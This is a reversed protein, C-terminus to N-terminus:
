GLGGDTGGSGPTTTKDKPPFIRRITELVAAAAGALLVWATLTDTTKPKKRRRSSSRRLDSGDTEFDGSDDDSDPMIGARLNLLQDNLLQLNEYYTKCLDKQSSPKFRKLNQCQEKIKSEFSAILRETNVALKEAKQIELDADDADIKSQLAQQLQEANKLQTELNIRDTATLTVPGPLSGSTATEALMNALLQKLKIM